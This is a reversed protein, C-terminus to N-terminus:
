YGHLPALASRTTETLTALDAGVADWTRRCREQMSGGAGKEILNFMRAVSQFGHSQFDMTKVIIRKVENLPSFDIQSLLFKGIAAAHLNVVIQLVVRVFFFWLVTSFMFLM